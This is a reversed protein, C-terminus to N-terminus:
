LFKKFVEKKRLQISRSATQLGSLFATDDSVDVKCM